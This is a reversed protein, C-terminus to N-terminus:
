PPCGIIREKSAINPDGAFEVFKKRFQNNCDSKRNKLWAQIKAVSSPKIVASRLGTPLFVNDLDLVVKGGFFVRSRGVTKFTAL